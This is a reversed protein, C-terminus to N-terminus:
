KWYNTDANTVYFTLRNTTCYTQTYGDPPIFSSTDLLNFVSAAPIMEHMQKRAVQLLLCFWTPGNRKPRTYTIGNLNVKLSCMGMVTNWLGKTSTIKYSSNIKVKIQTYQHVSTRWSNGVLELFVSVSTVARSVVVQVSAQRRIKSPSGSKRFTMLEALSLLLMSSHM